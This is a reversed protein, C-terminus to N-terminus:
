RGKFAPARKENVSHAAERAAPMLERIEAM